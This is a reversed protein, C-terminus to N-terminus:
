GAQDCGPQLLAARVAGHHRLNTAMNSYFRQLEEDLNPTEFESQDGPDKKRRM